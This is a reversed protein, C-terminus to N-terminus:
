KRTIDYILITTRNPKEESELNFHQALVKKTDHIYQIYGVNSPFISDYEKESGDKSIVHLSLQFSPHSGIFANIEILSKMENIKDVELNKTSEVFLNHNTCFVDQIQTNTIQNKINDLSNIRKEYPVGKPQSYGIPQFAIKNLFKLTDLEWKYHYINPDFLYIVYVEKKAPDVCYSSLGSPFYVEKNLYISGREFPATRIFKKDQPNILLLNKATTYTSQKEVEGGNMTMLDITNSLFNRKGYEGMVSLKYSLGNPYLGPRGVKFLQKGALNYIFLGKTGIVALSDKKLYCIAAIDLGCDNPGEGTISFNHIVKGKESFELIEKKRWDYALYTHKTSDYDTIALEGISGSDKSVIISDVLTSKYSGESNSTNANESHCSVLTVLLLFAQAMVIGRARSHWNKLRM